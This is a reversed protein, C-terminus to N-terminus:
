AIKMGYQDNDILFAKLDPNLANVNRDIFDNIFPAVLYQSDQPPEMDCELHDMYDTSSILTSDVLILIILFFSTIFDLNSFLDKLHRESSPDTSLISNSITYHYGNNHTFNNLQKRIRVWADELHHKTIVENITTNQRLSDLFHEFSFGRITKKSLEDIRNEFWAAVLIEDQDVLPDNMTNLAENILKEFEKYDFVGLTEVGGPNEKFYKKSNIVNLTFLFLLLDDLYKRTLTNADGFSGISCCLAISNLTKYASDILETNFLFHKNPFHFMRTHGVDNYLYSFSGLFEMLEKVQEQFKIFSQSRQYSDKIQNIDILKM